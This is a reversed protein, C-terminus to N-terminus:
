RSAAWKEKFSFEGPQAFRGDLMGGEGPCAEGGREADDANSHTDTWGDMKRITRPCVSLQTSRERHAEMPPTM